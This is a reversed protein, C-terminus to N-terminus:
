QNLRGFLTCFAVAACLPVVANGLAQLRETVMRATTGDDVRCVAPKLMPYRSLIESWRDSEGPRPPWIPLEASGDELEEARSETFVQLCGSYRSYALISGSRRPQVEGQGASQGPICVRENDAVSVREIASDHSPHQFQAGADTLTNVDRSDQGIDEGDHRMSGSEPDDLEAGSSASTGRRAKGAGSASSTLVSTTGPDALGEDCGDGNDRRTQEDHQIGAGELGECGGIHKHALLFVRERKHPAGVEAASFLGAEVRYGMSELVAKCDFRFDIAGAVNELFVFEPQVEGVIRAVDDFVVREDSYGKRQGAHSWPQCPDGSTIIDVVGRWPKGDFTTVDSWIPATDLAKDEMRAVLVSAAYAEREVYCVSRYGELAISLGLDLGGIGACLSLGNTHVAV